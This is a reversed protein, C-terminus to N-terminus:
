FHYGLTIRVERPPYPVYAYLGTAPGVAAPAPTVWASGYNFRNLINNVIGTVSFRTNSWGIGGDLRFVPALNLDTEQSYRGARGAQLQYGGSISFGKIRNFPLKYNLWTNQIHKVRYPSPLGIYATKTDKSIYSDTYAYNIVANLGKVIEGKLDFEIGKSKTQGIQTQLNTSPDTVIINDRTIAYVSVTTNWKGGLWDKKLGAELNKGRLPEFVGGTASIGSQPTYTQDWLAYASLDNRISYSLGIRPTLVVDSVSSVVPIAVSSKSGTLRAAVTLRLKDNLMNLEDQVYGAYYEISSKNTAIDALSGTRENPDFTIGYVPNNVDLNYLAPNATKDNYGSYALLNKKNFDFGGLVKHTISGTKFEGNLFGQFSYVNTRFREYTVRRPLLNPTNKNYSSVFFYNGDLNDQAFTAKATFDWHKSFQNHYTLFANNEASNVPKKNPDAISFDKPLSAFGGPSFVTLLYQEFRQKQYLYEASIFSHANINYKIVPDVLVKDNFAFKQFSEAKQGVANLRYQWKNAADFHGELDATIRYLDFSGATFSINNSSVGAPQKTVVNFSGAPDGISNVFGAPGKIFELRDIIAADEPAPGYYIMSLDVGNRLTNIAAGRMFIFPGYFDATNNRMAGSVNRTISENINIAQQDMIISQDIEQINQPLQLLPTKVKLSNSSKDLKYKKYYRSNIKVENLRNVSTDTKLAISDKKINKYHQAKAATGMLLLAYIMWLKNM